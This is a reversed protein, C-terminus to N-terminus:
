SPPGLAETRSKIRLHAATEFDGLAELAEDYRERAEEARGRREALEGLAELAEARGVTSGLSTMVELGNRLALDATEHADEQTHARGLALKVRARNYSDDVNALLDGARELYIVAMASRGQGLVALGLDLMALGESRTARRERFAEAATLFYVVAEDLHGRDVAVSGLRRLSSAERDREGLRRWIDRAAGFYEAAEDPRGVARMSHGLRDLMKAEAYANECARAAALGTKEITAREVHHGRMLFLSWLADALQWATAHREREHALTIAAGLNGLEREFFALADAPGGFDTVERPPTEADRPLGTRYPRLRREARAATGLYWGLLRTEAEKRGSESDEHETLQSAHLRVLEHHFRYTGDTTDTLLNADTLAGLSRRAEVAPVDALAAAAEGGFTTGPVLGLLRYLRAEEEGLARYSLDLASRVAMDDGIALAALRRQEEALVTVMEGLPWNPRSALRAAAVTLALPLRMCLEVLEDAAARDRDVRERGLTDSLLALSARVDLRDLYMGRAGQALLSALRYRSTVLTVSTPSAPLLPRVQAATVADDLLVLLRRDHTVTRYLAARRAPEGPILEVPVGLAHLFDGLVKQPSVPDDDSHGRLDAFLQGDPYHRRIKHAWGLSLVTKGVGVSGTILITLPIDTVEDRMADLAALEAKRGVLRPRPLLQNPAPLPAPGHFHVGGSVDRAQVVAGYVTGSM